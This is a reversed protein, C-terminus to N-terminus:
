DIGAPEVSLQCGQISPINYCVKQIYPYKFHIKSM